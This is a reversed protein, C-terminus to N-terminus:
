LGGPLRLMLAVAEDDSLGARKVLIDWTNFDVALVVAPRVPERQGSPWAHTLQDAVLALWGRFNAVDALEPLLQEDRLINRSMVETERYFRYLQHLAVSMRELPDEIAAWARLDPRPHLDRWHAGCARFMSEQTPFHKYVTLREVGALEAIASITTKAPGVEMHLRMITEIIHRRTDERRTARAKLEYKRPM